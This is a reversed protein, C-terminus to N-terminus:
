GEMIEVKFSSFALKIEDGNKIGYLVNPKLKIGNLTTGHTSGRDKIYYSNDSFMIECHGRSIAGNANIIGDVELDNSQRGIIFRDKRIFLNVNLGDISFFRLIPQPKKIIINSKTIGKKFVEVIQKNSYENNLLVSYYRNMNSNSFLPSVSMFQVLKKRLDVFSDNSNLKNSIPLYIMKVQLTETNVFIREFSLLLNEKEIFDNSETFQIVSFLNVLLRIFSDKDINKLVNLLSKYEASYYLLKIKGNARIRSCRIYQETNNMLVKYASLLFSDDELLTYSVNGDCVTEIINNSSLDSM